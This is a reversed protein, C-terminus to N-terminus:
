SLPTDICVFIIYIYNGFTTGTTLQPLHAVMKGLKAGAAAECVHMNKKKFNLIYPVYLLLYVLSIHFM